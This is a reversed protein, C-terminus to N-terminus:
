NVAMEALAVAMGGDSIDHVGRLVGANVLAVVLTVLARHREYDLGALQGGDHGHVARAWASGVLSDAHPEGLLLVRGGEVLRAGVCAVNLASEAVTLETGRRPDLACWRNNGDTTVALARRSDPLGPAKLRLLAADGGPGEVTNLFLQYDYQSWVWSTDFTLRL